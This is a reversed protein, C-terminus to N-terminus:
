GREGIRLILMGDSSVIGVAIPLSTGSEWADVWAAEGSSQLYRLRQVTPLEIEMATQGPMYLLLAAATDSRLLAFSVRCREQWGAPADCWTAFAVSDARGVFRRDPSEDVTARGALERLHREANTLRDWENTARSIASGSVGVVEIMSYATVAIIATLMV